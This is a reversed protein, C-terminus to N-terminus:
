EHSGAQQSTAVTDRADFVTGLDTGPPSCPIYGEVVFRDGKHQATLAGGALIAREKMGLIGRGSRIGTGAGGPPLPSSVTLGLGDKNWNLALDVDTAKGHKLANTLSEQVVRYVALEQMDSLTGPTGTDVRRVDLGSHEALADLDELGASPIFIAQDDTAAIVRQAETMAKRASSAIAELAKMTDGPLGPHAYRSGDAQAVIVALSHALVDHLDRSIRSREQELILEVEASRLLTEAQSKEGLLLRQEGYLALLLGAAAFGCGIALLVALCQWWYGNMAHANVSEVRFWGVGNGYGRSIMLFAMIAAFGATIAPAVVRTRRSGTWLNFAMAIFAGIYIPWTNSGISPALHVLQVVLLISTLALSAMASWSAVCIAGSILMLPWLGDWALLDEGIRANEASLWFVAFACGVMPAGWGQMVKLTRDM